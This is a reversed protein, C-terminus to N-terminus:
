FLYFNPSQVVVHFNFLMNRLLWHISPLVLFYILIKKLCIIMLVYYFRHSVAFTSRLSIVTIFIQWFVLFNDLLCDLMLRLLNSFCSCVLSLTLVLLSYCDPCFHIFYLFFYFTWYFLSNITLFIFLFPVSLLPLPCFYNLHTIHMHGNEVIVPSMIYQLCLVLDIFSLISVDKSWSFFLSFAFLIFFM